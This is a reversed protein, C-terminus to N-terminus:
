AVPDPFVRGLPSAVPEGELALAVTEALLTSFATDRLSATLLKSMERPVERADPLNPVCNRDVMEDVANPRLYAAPSRRILPDTGYIRMRLASVIKVPISLVGIM